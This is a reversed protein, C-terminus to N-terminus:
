LGVREVLEGLPRVPHAPPSAVEGLEAGLPQALQGPLYGGLWGTARAEARVESLSLSPPGPRWVGSRHRQPADDDAEGKLDGASSENDPRDNQRQQDALPLHDRCAAGQKRTVPRSSVSSAVEGKSHEAEREQNCAERQLEDTVEDAAPVLYKEECRDADDQDHGKDKPDRDLAPNRGRNM